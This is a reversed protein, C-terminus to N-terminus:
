RSEDSLTESPGIDARGRPGGRPPRTASRAIVLRMVSPDSPTEFPSIDARGRRGGRPSRTASRAIVLRKVREGRPSWRESSCGGKTSSSLRTLTELRPTRQRAPTNVRLHLPSRCTYDGGFALRRATRCFAPRRGAVAANAGPSDRGDVEGAFSAAVDPVGAEVFRPRGLACRAHPYSDAPGIGAGAAPSGRGNIGATM